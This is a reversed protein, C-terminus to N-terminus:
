YLALIAVDSDVIYIVVDTCGIEQVLRSVLFVKTDVEEQHSLLVTVPQCQTDEGIVNLKFADKRTIFYM